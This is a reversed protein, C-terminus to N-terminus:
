YEMDGVILDERIPQIYKEVVTRHAPHNMYLNLDEKTNFQSILMIDFGKSRQSFNIGAQMDILEPISRKLGILADTLSTIEHLPINSKIKLLVVHSVM